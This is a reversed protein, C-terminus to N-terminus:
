PTVRLGGHPATRSVEVVGSTKAMILVQDSNVVSTALVGLGRQELQLALVTPDADQLQHEEVFETVDVYLAPRQQHHVDIWLLLQALHPSSEITESNSLAGGLTIGEAQIQVRPPNRRAAQELSKKLGGVYAKTFKDFDRFSIGRAM